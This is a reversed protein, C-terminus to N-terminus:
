GAPKEAAEKLRALGKEYDAGIWRDLLLGFWKAPIGHLDSRFTWTALTGGQSPALDWTATSKGMEGFDVDAAVHTPPEYETVIQSGSGVEEAESSWGMKQGLGIAPGEFTYKTKPDLEAWPSFEQFRRFDGVIAFVAEPPAAIQASRVVVAQAPLLFSGGLFILALAAVLSFFWVTLRILKRM